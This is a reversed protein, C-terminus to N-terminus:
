LRKAGATAECGLNDAIAINGAETLAERLGWRIEDFKQYAEDKTLEIGQERAIEQVDLYDWRIVLTGKTTEQDTRM